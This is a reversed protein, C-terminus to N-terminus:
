IAPQDVGEAALEDEDGHPATSYSLQGDESMTMSRPGPSLANRMLFHLNRRPDEISLGKPVAVSVITDADGSFAGSGTMDVPNGGGARAGSKGDHHCTVVTIGNDQLRAYFNLLPRVEAESNIDAYGTARRIPDLLFVQVDHQTLATLIADEQAKNGAVFTPRRTPTFTLFNRDFLEAERAGARLARIRQQYYAWPIEYQLVAVRCPEETPEFCCWDQGQALAALMDLALFSKFSKAWGHLILQGAVPLLGREFWSILTPPELDLLEGAAVLIKSEVPRAEPLPPAAETACWDNAPPTFRVAQPLHEGLQEAGDHGAKDDDQGLLVLDYGSLQEAYAQTHPRPDAGAPLVAVDVSYHETLWAADTEGEAVIVAHTPEVGARVIKMRRWTSGAYAWRRDTILDRFKIGGPFAFAIVHDDAMRAGLRVLAAHTIRKREVFADLSPSVGDDPLQGFGDWVEALEDDHRALDGWEGDSHGM